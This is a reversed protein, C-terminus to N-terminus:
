RKTFLRIMQLISEKQEQTCDALGSTIQRDADGQEGQVADGLLLTNPSLKLAKCFLLMTEISMGCTGREIDACYKPARNMLEALQERSMGLEKRRARIRNGVAQYDYVMDADRRQM